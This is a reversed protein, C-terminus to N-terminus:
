NIFICIIKCRSYLKVFGCPKRMQIRTAIFRIDFRSCTFVKRRVRAGRDIPEHEASRWDRRRGDPRALSLVSLNAAQIRGSFVIRSWSNRVIMPAQRRAQGAVQVVFRRIANRASCQRMRRAIWWPVSRVGAISFFYKQHKASVTVSRGQERFIWIRSHCHWM